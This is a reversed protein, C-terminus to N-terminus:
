AAVAPEAKLAARVAPPCGPDALLALADAPTDLDGVPALVDADLGAGQLAQLTLECVQPGGWAAPDIAFASPTPRPLAILTYGGDLAPVLCADHGGTLARSAAEYQDPGLLPADTGVVVLPGSHSRFFRDTAHELRAGLDGSTQPFQMVRSPVLAAIEAGAHRPTFALWIRSAADVAWAATHRILEAQLRACGDPGLRSELRTKVEGTRPARAMILISSM